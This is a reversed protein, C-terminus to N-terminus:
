VNAVGLTPAADNILHKGMLLSNIIGTHHMMGHISEM